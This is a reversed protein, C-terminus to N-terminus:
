SRYTGIKALGNVVNLFAPFGMSCVFVVHLGSVNRRLVVGAITDYERM